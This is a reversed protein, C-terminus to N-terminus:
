SGQDSRVSGSSYTGNLGSFGKAASHYEAAATPDFFKWQGDTDKYQVWDHGGNYSSGAYNGDIVRAEVGKAKLKAVTSQALDVCNGSKSSDTSANSKKDNYYFQYTYGAMENAVSNVAANATTSGKTSSVGSTDTTGSTGTTGSSSSSSASAMAQAAMANSSTNLKSIMQVIFSTPDSASAASTSTTGTTGTAATTGTTGLLSNSENSLKVQDGGAALGSTNSSLGTLLNLNMGTLGSTGSLLNSYASSNLGPLSFASMSGISNIAGFSNGSNNSFM